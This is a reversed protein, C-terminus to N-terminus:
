LCRNRRRWLGEAVLWGPQEVEQSEKDKELIIQEIKMQLDQEHKM